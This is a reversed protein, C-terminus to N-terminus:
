QATIGLQKIIRGWTDADARTLTALEEPSSGATEVAINAM